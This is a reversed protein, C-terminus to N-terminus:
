KKLEPLYRVELNRREYLFRDANKIGKDLDPGTKQSLRMRKSREKMLVQDSKQTITHPLYALEEKRRAFLAKGEKPM